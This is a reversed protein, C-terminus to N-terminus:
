SMDRSSAKALAADVDGAVAGYGGAAVQGFVDLVGEAVGEVGGRGAGGGVGHAEGAGEGGEVVEDFVVVVARGFDDV